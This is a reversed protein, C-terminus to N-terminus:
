VARWLLNFLASTIRKNSKECIDSNLFISTRGVIDCNSNLVLLKTCFLDQYMVVGLSWKGNRGSWMLLNDKQLIM